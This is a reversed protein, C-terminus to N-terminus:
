LTEGVKEATNSNKETATKIENIKELVKNYEM